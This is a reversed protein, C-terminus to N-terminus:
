VPAPSPSAHSAPFCVQRRSLPTPIGRAWGHACIRREPGDTSIQSRMALGCTQQLTHPLYQPAHAAPFPHCPACSDDNSAKPIRQLSRSTCDPQLERTSLGASGMPWSVIRPLPLPFLSPVPSLTFSHTSSMRGLGSSVHTSAVHKRSAVRQSYAPPTSTMDRSWSRPSPILPYSTARHITPIRGSPGGDIGCQGFSM